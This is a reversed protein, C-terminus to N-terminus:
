LGCFEEFLLGRLLTLYVATSNRVQHYGTNCCDCLVIEDPPESVGGQCESCMVEQGFEDFVDQLSHLHPRPGVLFIWFPSVLFTHFTSKEANRIM